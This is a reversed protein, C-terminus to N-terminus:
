DLDKDFLYGCVRRFCFALSNTDSFQKYKWRSDLMRKVLDVRVRMDSKGQAVCPKRYLTDDLLRRDAENNSPCEFPINVGCVRKALRSMAYGFSLMGYEVCVRQWEQWDIADKYARLVMAWDCIHRLIIGENLFHEQAHALVYVADFFPTPAKLKSDLIYGNHDNAIWQRLEREFRKAKNSGKVPLLYQHNEVTLGHMLIKSHKYYHLDVHLGHRQAIDNGLVFAERGDIRNVLFCDMDTCPRHEPKPYLRSLAFGKMVYIDIGYQAFLAALAKASAWQRNYSQEQRLVTAIWRHKVKHEETRLKAEQLLKQLADFCIASVGQQLSLSFAFEWNLSDTYQFQEQQSGLSTTILHYLFTEVTHM